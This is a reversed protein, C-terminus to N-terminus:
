AACLYLAIASAVPMWLNDNVRSTTPVLEVATAALAGAAAAVPHFGHLLCAAFCVGFCGASGELTKKGGFLRRKGLSKGILAAAADGLAVCWIAASVVRPFDGFFLVIVLVGATTHFIGSFHGREEPRSLGKFLSFLWDNLGGKYLRATEVAGVVLMWSFLWGLVRPYGILHYAALYVLSLMHFLKRGCERLFDSM